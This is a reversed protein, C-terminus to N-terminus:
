LMFSLHLFMSCDLSPMTNPIRIDDDRNQAIKIKVVFPGPVTRCVPLRSGKWTKLSVLPKFVVSKFNWPSFIPWIRAIITSTTSYQRAQMILQCCVFDFLFNILYVRGQSRLLAPRIQIRQRLKALGM